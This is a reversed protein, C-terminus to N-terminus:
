TDRHSEITTENGFVIPRSSALSPHLAGNRDRYIRRWLGEARASSRAVADGFPEGRLWRRVFLSLGPEPLWNVGPTGCVSTAGLAQWTQLMTVGHCNMQWVARLRLLGPKAQHQAILPAFSAATVLQGKHGILADPSGHSLVLLDVVHTRSLAMLAARLDPGTAREDELILVRNYRRHVGQLRLSLKVYEEAVYDVTRSVWTPLTMGAIHGLNELFVVLAVPLRTSVGVGERGYQPHTSYPRDQQLSGGIGLQGGTSRTPRAPEPNAENGFFPSSPPM